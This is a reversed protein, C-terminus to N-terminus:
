VKRDLATGAYVSWETCGSAIAITYCLWLRHHPLAGNPVSEVEVQGWAQRNEFTLTDWPLKDNLAKCAAICAKRTGKLYFVAMGNRISTVQYWGTKFKAGFALSPDHLCLQDSAWIPDIHVTKHFIPATPSDVKKYAFNITIM